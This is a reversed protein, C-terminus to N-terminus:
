LGTDIVQVSVFRKIYIFPKEMCGTGYITNLVPLIQHIFAPRTCLTHANNNIHLLSENGLLAGYALCWKQLRVTSKLSFEACIRRMCSEIKLKLLWWDWSQFSSSSVHRLCLCVCLESIARVNLEELKDITNKADVLKNTLEVIEQDMTKKDREVKRLQSSFFSMWTFTFTFPRM